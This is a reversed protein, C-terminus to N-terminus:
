VPVLRYQREPVVLTLVALTPIWVLIYIVMARKSKEKELWKRPRVGKFFFVVKGALDVSVVNIAPLLSAGLAPELHGQGLMLGVTAAPPPLAVAVMVGVPVTKVSRRILPVDGLATGLSLAPNPGLLRVDLSKVREAAARVTEASGAGAIVEVYKM